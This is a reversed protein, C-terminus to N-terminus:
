FHEKPITSLRSPQRRPWGPSIRGKRGSRSCRCCLNRARTMRKSDGAVDEKSYLQKWGPDIIVRGGAKFPVKGVKAKVSTQEFECDPFFVAIFRVAIIRFVANERDTLGAPEVGTPIIAHHDTVKSNDFVKKSKRLKQGRIPGLLPHFGKLRNLIDKCKPYIDDTLYTTDVRPYTAVKKEYLSQITRLTDDASLGLKRNCEVQLSTLDFLRPPAERGKKKSVDTIELLDAKVEELLKKGEEETKFSKGTASFLTDRYLTKLEWYNEPVFNDIEHQRKVVLALTPTQVRGISLVTGRLGYKITYLRTANLGLIWDGIARCLGATYLPELDKHERLHSFGDKIADDTLSSIWLRKVPKRCEAKQMVWRQILEGEQGADGCNIVEDAQEILSKIVGFQRKIGSDEILKIGFRDPIMPLSGLAWRKWEPRYDDPEKLTCLHGFTWTVCYGGGEYYGDCRRTAGLIAAIDKGVSPKETICLIM